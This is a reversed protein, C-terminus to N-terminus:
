SCLLSKSLDLGTWLFDGHNDVVALWDAEFIMTSYMSSAMV